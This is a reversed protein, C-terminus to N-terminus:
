GEQARNFSALDKRMDALVTEHDEGDLLRVQAQKGLRVKISDRSNVWKEAYLYVAAVPYRREVEQIGEKPKEPKTDRHGDWYDKIGKDYCRWALTVAEIEDIGDIHAGPKVESPDVKYVFLDEM